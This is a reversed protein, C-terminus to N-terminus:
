NLDVKATRVMLIPETQTWAFILSEEMLAIQPFGSSRSADTIGVTQPDSVTGDPLIERMMVYGMGEFEQMWTAYISGENSLALDARGLVRYQQENLVIPENFTQGGDNSRVLQVRPNDGEATFWAVAVNNGNAVVSPGNVPCAMIQWNDDHVTAPESWSGTEANYRSIKIDRIEESSRGRYVAVYGEDTKALDTQCCDCVTSDIVERNTIEGSRSVEASRLMMSKSTDSYEDDARDATMRGDLWVALVKDNNMPELSVFGHETATTDQHVKIPDSWNGGDASDFFSVEVNYAYPGGEIKRLRHAALETGNVGVVSPFDAWNVFFNMDVQVTKPETWRGDQYTTYQLAFIEEEISTVWSMYMKGSDDKYFNPYRTGNQAPNNIVYEMLPRQLPQEECSCIFLVVSLLLVAKKIMLFQTQKDFIDDFILFVGSGGSISVKNLNFFM